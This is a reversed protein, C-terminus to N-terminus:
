DFSIEGFPVRMKGGGTIPRLVSTVEGPATFYEGVQSFPNRFPKGDHPNGEALGKGAGKAQEVLLLPRVALVDPSEPRRRQLVAAGNRLEAGGEDMSVVLHGQRFERMDLSIRGVM